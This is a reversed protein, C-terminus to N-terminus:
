DLLLPAELLQRVTALFAAADAGDLSRHDASLTLRMMPVYYIVGDRRVVEERVQGVALAAVQPPTIIATFSEVGMM